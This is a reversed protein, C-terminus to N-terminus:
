LTPTAIFSLTYPGPGQFIGRSPDLWESDPMRDFLWEAPIDSLCIPHRSTGYITVWCGSDVRFALYPGTENM